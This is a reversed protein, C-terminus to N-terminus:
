CRYLLPAAQRALWKLMHRKSYGAARTDLAASAVLFASNSILLLCFKHAPRRLVKTYLLLRVFSVLLQIPKGKDILTLAKRANYIQYTLDAALDPLMKFQDDKDEYVYTNFLLKFTRHETFGVNKCSITQLFRAMDSSHAAAPAALHIVRGQEPTMCSQQQIGLVEKCRADSALVTCLMALMGSTM